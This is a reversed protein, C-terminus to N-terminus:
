RAPKWNTQCVGGFCDLSLLYDVRKQLREQWEVVEKTSMAALQESSLVPELAEDPM